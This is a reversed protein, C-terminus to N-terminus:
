NCAKRRIEFVQKTLIDINKTPYSEYMYCSENHTGVSPLIFMRLKGLTPTVFSHTWKGCEERGGEREVCDNCKGRPILNEECDSYGSLCAMHM